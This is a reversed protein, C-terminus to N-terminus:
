RFLEDLSLTLEPLLPTTLADGQHRTVAAPALFSGHEGRRYVAVREAEPDVVWYEEVGFAEYVRRKIDLDMKRSSPSIVEVALAPAGHVHRRVYTAVQEATLYLVDPELVDYDSLVVDLPSVFVEGLPHADLYRHIRAVLRVVFRQHKVSASPSVYHVGDILEHRLGDDQMQCLDAYTLKRSLAGAAEMDDESRGHMASSPLM